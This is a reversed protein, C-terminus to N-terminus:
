ESCCSCRREDETRCLNPPGSTSAGPATQCWSAVATTCSPSKSHGGIASLAIESPPKTDAVTGAVAAFLWAPKRENLLYVPWDRTRLHTQYSVPRLLLSGSRCGCTPLSRVRM